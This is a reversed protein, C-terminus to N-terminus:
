TEIYVNTQELWLYLCLFINHFFMGPTNFLIMNSQHDPQPQQQQLSFDYEGQQTNKANLFLANSPYQAQVAM